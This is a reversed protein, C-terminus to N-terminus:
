GGSAPTDRIAVFTVFLLVSLAVGCGLTLGVIEILGPSPRAALGEIAVAGQFPLTAVFALMALPFPLESTVPILGRFM